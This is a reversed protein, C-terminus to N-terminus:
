PTAMADPDPIEFQCYPGDQGPVCAAALATREPESLADAAAQTPCLDFCGVCLTVPWFFPASNQTFGGMTTGIAKIVVIVQNFGAGFVADAVAQRYLEPIAVTIAAASTFSDDVAAPLNASAAVRYPNPLAESLVLNAGDPTQLTIELNTVQLNNQEAQIDTARSIIYSELLPSVVYVAARPLTGFPTAVDWLGGTQRSDDSPDAACEEGTLPLMGGIQLGNHPFRDCSAVALVALAVIIFRHM